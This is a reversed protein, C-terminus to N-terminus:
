IDIGWGSPWNREMSNKNNLSVTFDTNVPDGQLEQAKSIDDRINMDNVCLVEFHGLTRNLQVIMEGDGGVQNADDNAMIGGPKFTNGENAKPFFSGSGITPHDFTIETIDGGVAM